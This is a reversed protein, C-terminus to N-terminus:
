VDLSVSQREEFLEKLRIITVTQVDPVYGGDGLIGSTVADALDTVEVDVGLVILGLTATDDLEGAGPRGKGAELGAEDHDVGDLTTGKDDLHSGLLAGLGLLTAGVVAHTCQTSGVDVPTQILRDLEAVGEGAALEGVLSEQGGVSRRSAGAGGDGADATSAAANGGLRDGVQGPRSGTRRYGGLERVPLKLPSHHHHILLNLHPTQSDNSQSKVVSSTMRGMCGAHGYFIFCLETKCIVKGM